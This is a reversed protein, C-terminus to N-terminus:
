QQDTEAPGGRRHEGRGDADAVAGVEPRRHRNDDKAAGGDGFPRLHLQGALHIEGPGVVEVVEARQEM